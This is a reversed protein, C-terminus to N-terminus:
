QCINNPLNTTNTQRGNTIQIKTANRYCPFEIKKTNIDTGVGCALFNFFDQSEGDIIINTFCNADFDVFANLSDFSFNYSDITNNNADLISAIYHNDNYFARYDIISQAATHNGSDKFIKNTEIISPGSLVNPTTLQGSAERTAIFKLYKTPNTDILKIRKPSYACRSNDSNCVKVWYCGPPIKAQGSLGGWTEPILVNKSHSNTVNSAIRWGAKNPEDWLILRMKETLPITLNTRWGINYIGGKRWIQNQLPDTVSLTSSSTPPTGGACENTFVPSNVNIQPISSIMSGSSDTCKLEATYNSLIPGLPITGNNGMTATDGYIESFPIESSLGNQNIKLACSSADSGQRLRWNLANFDGNNITNKQSSFSSILPEPPLARRVTIYPGYVCYKFDSAFGAFNGLCIQLRYVIFNYNASPVSININGSQEGLNTVNTNPFTTLNNIIPPNSTANVLNIETTNTPMVGQFKWTIYSKLKGLNDPEWTSPLASINSINIQPDIINVPKDSIDCDFTAGIGTPICIKVYYSGYPLKGSLDPLTFTASGNNDLNEAVKLGTLTKENWLNIRVKGVNPTNSKWAVTVPNNSQWSESTTQSTIKLAGPSDYFSYSALTNSCTPFIFQWMCYETSGGTCIALLYNGRALTQEVNVIATGLNDVTAIKNYLNADYALKTDAPTNLILSSVLYIDAKVGPLQNKPWILSLPSGKSIIGYWFTKTIQRNDGCVADFVLHKVVNVGSASFTGLGDVYAEVSTTRNPVLSINATAPSIPSPNGNVLCSFSYTADGTLPGFFRNGSATVPLSGSQGDTLSWDIKCDLTDSSNPSTAQWNAYVMQWKYVSGPTVTTPSPTVTFNYAFFNEISVSGSSLYCEEPFENNSGDQGCVEVKYVGPPVPSNTSFNFQYDGDNYEPMPYPAFEPLALLSYKTTDNKLNITVSSRPIKEKVWTIHQDWGKTWKENSAQSTVVQDSLVTEVIYALGGVVILLLGVSIAIATKAGTSIKIKEMTTQM